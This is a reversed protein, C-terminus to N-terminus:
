PRAGRRRAPPIANPAAAPQDPAAQSENPVVMGAVRGSAGALLQAVGTNTNVVADSGAFQNQGRSIRVNGGLRALGSDAIYVGRDGAVTDTATRILVNGFAEVRQLKGSGAIPAAGGDGAPPVRGGAEHSYAVLTDAQVGGAM